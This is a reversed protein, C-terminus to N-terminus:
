NNTVWAFNTNDIYIYKLNPCDVGTIRVGRKPVETIKEGAKARVVLFVSCTGDEETICSQATLIGKKGMWVGDIEAKPVPKNNFDRIYINAEYVVRDEKIIHSTEIKGIFCEGQTADVTAQVLNPM